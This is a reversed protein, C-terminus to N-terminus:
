RQSRRRQLTGVALLGALLMAVGTPEPVATTVSVDDFAIQTGLAAETAGSSFVISGVAAPLALSKLTWNCYPSDSCGNSTANATLDISALLAGTGNAGAFLQVAGVVDASASYHFSLNDVFFLGSTSSLVATGGVGTPGADVVMVAANTPANSYYTQGFGDNISLSVAADSFSLGLGAEYTAGVATYYTGDLEDFTLTSSAAFAPAALALVAAAILPRHFTM